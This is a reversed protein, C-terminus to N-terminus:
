PRSATCKPLTLSTTAAAGIRIENPWTGSTSRSPSLFSHVGSCAYIGDDDSHPPMQSNTTPVAADLKKRHREQRDECFYCSCRKGCPSCAKDAGVARRQLQVAREWSTVVLNDSMQTIRTIQTVVYHWPHSVDTNDTNDRLLTPSHLTFAISQQKSSEQPSLVQRDRKM